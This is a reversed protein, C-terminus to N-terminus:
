PRGRGGVSQKSLACFAPPTGSEARGVANCLLVGRGYLEALEALVPQERVMMRQFNAIAQDRAYPSLGEWVLLALEATVRQVSPEWPGLEQGRLMAHVFVSDIEGQAAKVAAFATWALPWTPRGMIAARYRALVDDASANGSPASTDDALMQSLYRTRASEEQFRPDQGLWREFRGLLAMAPIFTLSVSDVAGLGRAPGLVSFEQANHYRVASVITGSIGGVIASISLVLLLAAGVGGLVWRM